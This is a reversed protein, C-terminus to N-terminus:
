HKHQRAILTRADLDEIFVNSVVSSSLDTMNQLFWHGHLHKRREMVDERVRGYDPSVKGSLRMGVM